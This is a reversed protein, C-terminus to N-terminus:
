RVQQRLVRLHAAALQAGPRIGLETDLRHRLRAFLHVAAAQQGGAALAIMLHAHAQENFPERDCLARLHPAVRERLIGTGAIRAFRLVVEGRRRTAEAVAPYGQLLEVDALADGRWLGLSREYLACALNREGQGWAVDARRSLQGFEALDLDVRDSLRYHRGALAIPDACEGPARGADGVRGARGARGADGVLDAHGTRGARGPVLLQRLRSVYVQIEAVASRPPHAGWLVDIMADRPVAGPWHMALLAFVARQRASGLEVAAGDRVMTLPGLVAIRTGGNGAGGYGGGHTGARGYAGDRTGAGGNGAAGCAGILDPQGGRWATALAAYQCEDMGLAVAISSLAAWRPCRTRGQELDRLAGISVGSAAALERQTLGSRM